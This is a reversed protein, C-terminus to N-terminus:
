HCDLNKRSKTKSSRAQHVSRATEALTLYLQCIRDHHETHIITNFEHFMEHLIEIQKQHKSLRTEEDSVISLPASDFLNKVNSFLQRFSLEQSSVHRRTQDDVHRISAIKEKVENRKIEDPQNVPLFDVLQSQVRFLTSQLCVNILRLNNIETQASHLQISVNKLRLCESPSSESAM